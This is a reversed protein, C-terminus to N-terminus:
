RSARRCGPSAPRSKAPPWGSPSPWKEIYIRWNSRCEFVGGLALLDPFVAHGHWRRALHGIKPWPNPYLVYHRALCIDARAAPALFRGSRRARFPRQGATGLNAGGSATARNISALSSIIPTANPWACRAGAWAAAPMSSSRRAPTGPTARLWLRRSPRATTISYRSASPTIWTAAVLAALDDHLGSQASSIFRSNGAM